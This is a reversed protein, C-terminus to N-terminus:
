RGANRRRQVASCGHEQADSELRHSPEWADCKKRILLVRLRMLGLEMEEELGAALEGEM